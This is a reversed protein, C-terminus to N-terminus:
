EKPPYPNVLGAALTAPMLKFLEDIMWGGVNTLMKEEAPESHKDYVRRSTFVRM